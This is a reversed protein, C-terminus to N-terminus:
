QKHTTTFCNLRHGINGNHRRHLQQTSVWHPMINIIVMKNSWLLVDLVDHTELTWVLYLHNHLVFYVCFSIILLLIMLLLIINSGTHLLTYFVYSIIYYLIILYLLNFCLSYTSDRFFIVIKRRVSDAACQCHHIPIKTDQM